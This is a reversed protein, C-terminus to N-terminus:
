CLGQLHHNGIPIEKELPGNESAINTEPLTTKLSPVDKWFKRPERGIWEGAGLICGSSQPQSAASASSPLKGFLAGLVLFGKSGRFVLSYGRIDFSPQLVIENKFQRSFM